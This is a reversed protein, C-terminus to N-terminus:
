PKAQSQRLHAYYMRLIHGCAIELGAVLRTVRTRFVAYLLMAPIGVMLGGVTTIIAVAVGQAMALPIVAGVEAQLNSFSQLMGLVTGLLGIMPAVVAIDLLYQVRAWLLSAQRSGEDELASQIVEYDVKERVDLQELAALIVKAAASDNGQCHQRLGENDGQRIAAEAQGLFMSPYVVEERLSFLFYIALFLGIVSLGLIPYMCWGGAHIVDGLTKLHLGPGAAARDPTVAWGVAPALLLVTAMLRWLWQDVIRKVM